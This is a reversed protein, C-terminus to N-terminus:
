HINYNNSSTYSYHDHLIKDLECLSVGPPSLNYMFWETGELVQVFDGM